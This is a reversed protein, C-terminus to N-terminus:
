NAFGLGHEKGDFISMVVFHYFFFGMMLFVCSLKM